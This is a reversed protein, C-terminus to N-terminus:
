FKRNASKKESSYSFNKPGKQRVNSLFEAALKNPRVCNKDAGKSNHPRFNPWNAVSDVSATGAEDVPM